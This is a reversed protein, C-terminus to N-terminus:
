KPLEENLEPYHKRVASSFSEIWLQVERNEIPYYKKLL